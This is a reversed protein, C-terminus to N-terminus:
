VREAAHRLRQSQQKVFLQQRARLQHVPKLVHVPTHLCQMLPCGERARGLFLFRDKDEDIKRGGPIRNALSDALQASIGLRRMDRDDSEAGVLGQVRSRGLGPGRQHDTVCRSKLM